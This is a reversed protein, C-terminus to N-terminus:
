VCLLSVCVSVDLSLVRLGGAGHWGGPVWTRERLVRPEWGLVGAEEAVGAWRVGAALVVEQPTVGDVVGVVFKKDQNESKGRM